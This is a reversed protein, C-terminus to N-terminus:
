SRRRRRKDEGALEILRQCLAESLRYGAKRLDQLANRVSDISGKEKAALLVRGTGIVTLGRKSAAFRGRRADVLIPCALEQALHIAAAEGSDLGPIDTFREPRRVIIWRERLIARALREVGPRKEELRLEECVVEPVFVRGILQKLVTLRDVRSLAILPGADSVIRKM